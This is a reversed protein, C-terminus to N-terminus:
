KEIFFNITTEFATLYNLDEEYLLRFFGKYFSLWYAPTSAKLSYRIINDIGKEKRIALALNVPHCVSLDIVGYYNNPIVELISDISKLGDFFEVQDDKWHSFLVIAYIDTLLFLSGFEQLTLQHKINLGIAKVTKEFDEIFSVIEYNYKNWTIQSGSIFDKGNSSNWYDHYFDDKTTPIGFAFVCNSPKIVQKSIVQEDM